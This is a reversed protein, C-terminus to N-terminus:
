RLGDTPPIRTPLPPELGNGTLKTSQFQYQLHRRRFLYTCKFATLRRFGIRPVLQVIPRTLHPVRFAMKLVSSSHATRFGEISPTLLHFSSAQLTRGM